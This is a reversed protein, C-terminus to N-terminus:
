VQKKNTLRETLNYKNRKFYKKTKIIYMEAKDPQNKNLFKLIYRINIFAFIINVAKIVNQPINNNFVGNLYGSTFSLYKELNNINDCLLGWLIAIAINGNTTSDYDITVLENDILLFNGPHIDPHGFICPCKKLIHIDNILFDRIKIFLKKNQKSFTDCKTYAPYFTNLMQFLYQLFNEYEDNQMPKDPLLNRLNGFGKAVNYTLNYIEDESYNDLYFRLTEGKTFEQVIYYYEDLKGIEEIKSHRIQAKEFLEKLNTNIKNKTLKVFYKKGNKIALYKKDISHGEGNYEICSEADKLFKISKIEEM